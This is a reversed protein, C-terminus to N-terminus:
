PCRSRSCSLYLIQYEGALRQLLELARASHADDLNVFPDDLLLFPKEGPFLAEVLALRMCLSVAEVTGTSFSGLERPKGQQDLRLNLDQDLFFDPFQDRLLLEAYKRFGRELSGVYSGSLQTRAQELCDQTRTLLEYEHAARDKTDRLSRIQDELGPLEDLARRLSDRNQRAQRLQEELAALERQLLEERSQLEPLAPTEMTGAAEKLQPHQALLADLRQRTERSRERLSGQQRAAEEARQFLLERRDGELGYRRFFSQLEGEAQRLQAMAQSRSTEYAEMRLEAARCAELRRGLAEICSQYSQDPRLAGRGLLLARLEAEAAEAEQQLSEAERGQSRQRGLLGLYDERQTRLQRLAAEPDAPAQPFWPALAERLAARRAELEAELGAQAERHARLRARLTQYDRLQLMLPNTFGEWYDQGPYYREFLARLERRLQTLERRITEREERARGERGDLELYRERDAFLRALQGEPQSGDLDYRLLFDRLGHQLDYLEQREAQTIPSGQIPAEGAAPTRPRLWLAVGLGLLGLALLVAGLPIRQSLLCYLGGLGLLLGALAPLLPLGKGRGPEPLATRADKKGSLEAVRRCAQQQAELEEGQPLGPAFRRKLRELSEQDEQSPELAQLKAELAAIRQQDRERAEIAGEEPEGVAFFAALSQYRSQEQPSLAEQSSRLKLAALDAQQRDLEEMREESPLGRAFRRSLAELRQLEEPLLRAELRAARQDLTRCLARCRELEAGTQSLEGLLPKERELLAKDGEPPSLARLRAGAQDLAALLKRQRDLEAAEPIGRPWQAELAALAEEQQSLETELGQRQEELHRRASQAAAAHLQARLERIEQRKEAAQAELDQAEDEAEALIPKKQAAAYAQAELAALEEEWRGLKGGSGRQPKYSGRLRRLTAMAADYNNLDKTDEVLHSLKARISGTAAVASDQASLFVSRSFSEGDLQFLEEGLAESFRSSPQGATLDFLQFRDRAATPGFSRVVRWRRGQHEFELSGGYSGGQWPAYRRRPNDVDNRAGGRPFGYLMAKLFAALTTKGFGNPAQMLNFGEQFRYSLDQLKGFNDIHCSLLKM